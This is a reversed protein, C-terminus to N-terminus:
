SLRARTVWDSGIVSNHIAKMASAPSPQRFWQVMDETTAERKKAPQGVLAAMVSDERRKLERERDSLMKKFADRNM